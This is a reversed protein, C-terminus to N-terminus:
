KVAPKSVKPLLPNYAEKKYSCGPCEYDQPLSEFATGPLIGKRPNGKEEDYVTGCLECIYKMIYKEKEPLISMLSNHLRTRDFPFHGVGQHMWLPHRYDVM